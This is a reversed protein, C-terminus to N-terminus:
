FNFMTNDNALHDTPIEQPVSWHEAIMGNKLRFLDYFVAPKGHDFGESISLVFNGSGFVQHQRRYQYAIENAQVAKAFGAIGDAIKPHHQRYDVSFFRPFISEFETIESKVLINFLEAVRAKNEDTADLDEIERPGDILSRGSPNLPAPDTMVSWHEAILDDDGFRIIHFAVKEDAGFPVANKWLHHMIVHSGDQFIRINEIKTGHEKLRPFLALFAARGTPVRPNHQIYDERVMREVTAIDYESVATHYAQAKQKFNKM